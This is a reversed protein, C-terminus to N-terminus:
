LQWLFLHMKKSTPPTGCSTMQRENEGRPHPSRIQLTVYVAARLLTPHEWKWESPDWKLDQM